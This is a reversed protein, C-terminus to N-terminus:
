CRYRTHLPPSLRERSTVHRWLRKHCPKTFLLRLYHLCVRTGDRRDLHDNISVTFGDHFWCVRTGRDDLGYSLSPCMIASCRVRIVTWSVCMLKFTRCETFAPSLHCLYVMLRWYKLYHEFDALQSVRFWACDSVM